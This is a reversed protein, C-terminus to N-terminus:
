DRYVYPLKQTTMIVIPSKSRLKLSSKCCKQNTVVAHWYAVGCTNLIIKAQFPKNLSAFSRHEKKIATASIVSGGYAKWCKRSSRHMRINPQVFGHPEYM